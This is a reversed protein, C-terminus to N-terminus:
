NLRLIIWIIITLRWNYLGVTSNSVLTCSFTLIIIMFWSITRFDGTSSINIEKMKLFRRYHQSIQYDDSVESLQLQQSINLRRKLSWGMSRKTSGTTSLYRSKYYRFEEKLLRLEWLVLIIFPNWDVTPIWSLHQNTLQCNSSM